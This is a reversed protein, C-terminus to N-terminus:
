GLSPQQVLNSWPWVSLQRACVNVVSADSHLARVTTMDFLSSMAMRVKSRRSKKRPVLAASASAAVCNPRALAAWACDKLMGSEVLEPGRPVSDVCLLPIKM